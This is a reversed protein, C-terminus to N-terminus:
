VVWKKLNEKTCHETLIRICLIPSVTVVSSYIQFNDNCPKAQVSKWKTETRYVRVVCEDNKSEEVIM